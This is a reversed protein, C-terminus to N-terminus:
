KFSVGRVYKAREVTTRNTVKVVSRLESVLSECSDKSHEIVTEVRFSRVFKDRLTPCEKRVGGVGM